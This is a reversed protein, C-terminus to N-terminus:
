DPDRIVEVERTLGIHVTGARACGLDDRIDPSWANTQSVLPDKGNSGLQALIKKDSAEKDIKNDQRNEHGDYPRRSKEFLEIDDDHQSIGPLCSAQVKDRTSPENKLSVFGRYWLGGRPGSRNSSRKWARRSLLFRYIPLTSTLVAVNAECLDWFVGQAGVAGGSCSIVTRLIDFIIALTALCFIAALGLKQRLGMQLTSLVWLPFAM